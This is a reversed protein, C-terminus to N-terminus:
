KNNSMPGPSLLNESVSRYAAFRSAARVAILLDPTRIGEAGGGRCRTKGASVSMRRSREKSM